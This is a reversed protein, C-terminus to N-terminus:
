KGERKAEDWILNMEEPSAESLTKQRDALTKTIHTFRRVFKDTTTLLSKEADINLFRCLNVTSFLLDGTEEAICEQRGQAVAEKLEAIEEEIKSIIGDADQWDFGVLSAKESIRQAKIMAPMSRPYRGLPNEREGPKKEVETKIQVWNRRIEEVDKVITDSFVHPHRRIMKEAIATILEELTFESKEEALVVLFLIMFLLDGLEEKVHDTYGQQIADVAEYAEDMLYHLITKETQQRDWLCGDPSRLVRIISVLDMINGSPTIEGRRM